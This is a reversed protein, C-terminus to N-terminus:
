AVHRHEAVPSHIFIDTVMRLPYQRGVKKLLALEKDLDYHCDKAMKRRVRRVENILPDDDLISKKM